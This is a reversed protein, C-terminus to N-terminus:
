KHLYERRIGIQPSMMRQKLKKLRQDSTVTTKFPQLVDSADPQGMPVERASYRVIRLFLAAKRGDPVARPYNSFEGRVPPAYRHLQYVVAPCEVTLGLSNKSPAKFFFHVRGKMSQTSTMKASRDSPAGDQFRNRSNIQLDLAM